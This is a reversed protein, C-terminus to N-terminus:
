EFQNLFNENSLFRTACPWRRMAQEKQSLDLAFRKRTAYRCDVAAQLTDKVAAIVPLRTCHCRLPFSQLAVNM